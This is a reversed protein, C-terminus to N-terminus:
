DNKSVICSVMVVAVLCQCYYQITYYNIVMSVAVFRENM